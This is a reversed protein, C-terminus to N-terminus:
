QGLRTVYKLIDAQDVFDINAALEEERRFQEELLAQHRREKGVFDLDQKRRNAANNYKNTLNTMTGRGYLGDL